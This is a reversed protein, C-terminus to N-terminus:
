SKIEAVQDRDFVLYQEGRVMQEEDASDYWVDEGIIVGDYGKEKLTKNFAKRHEISPGAKKLYDSWFDKFIYPNSLNIYYPKGEGSKNYQLKTFKEVEIKSDGFWIADDYNSLQINGVRWVVGKVKSNAFKQNEMLDNEKLIKYYLQEIKNM